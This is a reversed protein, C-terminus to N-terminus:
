GSPLTERYAIAVIEDSYFRKPRWNGLEKLIGCEVLRDIDAKATHYTVGLKKAAETISVIPDRFLSEILIHTRPSHSKVRFPFEARLERFRHCRAIADKSQQITGRLCFEIWSLWDGSTSIRFMNRVYEDKYKEFFPSLYLWPQVHGHWKYIMMSLLARGIRGNGDSFPHIAEFQYHAIFAKVLPNFREDVSNAFETLNDMLREVENPPPPVYRANSGIQVQGTRYEGPSKDKGRVGAMLTAHISRITHNTIPRNDILECGQQLARSYNFVEMWDAMPESTSVADTPDKEYLLLQEPTVYTGEISSSSISEGRQLPRVLLEPDTLTQGIGNLTGLLERADGLLDSLKVRDFEWTPPLPAPIFAHDRFPKELRVVEGTADATFLNKDM